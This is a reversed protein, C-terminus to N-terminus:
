ADGEVIAGDFASVETLIRDPTGHNNINGMLAPM